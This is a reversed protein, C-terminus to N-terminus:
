KETNTIQPIIDNGSLLAISSRETKAVLFSEGEVGTEEGKKEGSEQSRLYANM